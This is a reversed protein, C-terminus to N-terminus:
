PKFLIGFSQQSMGSRIEIGKWEGYELFQYISAQSEELIRMNTNSKEHM